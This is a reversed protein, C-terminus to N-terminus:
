IDKSKFRLYSLIIFPVIWLLLIFVMLGSSFFSPFGRMALDGQSAMSAAPGVNLTVLTSYTQLPNLLGLIHYWEPINGEILSELGIQASLIGVFIIPLIMNFLFWLFIAGGMATSRKKFLTSFFMSLSLFVLGILITDGIFIIYDGYNVNPINIGIIIGAIGFGVFISFALVGGLGLFKGLLIELRTAPLSLLSSMSGREIEGIIAAYGLM